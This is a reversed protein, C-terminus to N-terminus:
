PTFELLGVVQVGRNLENQLQGESITVGLRGFDDPGDPQVQDWPVILREWGASIESMVGANRFGEAVGFRTDLSGAATGPSGSALVLLASLAFAVIPRKRFTRTM